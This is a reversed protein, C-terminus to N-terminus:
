SARLTRPMTRGRSPRLCVVLWALPLALPLLLLWGRAPFLLLEPRPPELPLALPLLLWGRAPFPLLEPRPPELPLAPSLLLLLWGRAPFPLLEPRPPEL